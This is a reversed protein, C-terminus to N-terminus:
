TGYISALAAALREDREAEEVLCAAVGSAVAYAISEVAKAQDPRLRKLRADALRLREHAILEAHRHVAVAAVIM